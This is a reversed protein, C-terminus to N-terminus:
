YRFNYLIHFMILSFLNTCHYRTYLLSNYLLYFIYIYLLINCLVCIMQLDRVM